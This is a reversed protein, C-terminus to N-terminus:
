KGNSKAVSKNPKIFQASELYKEKFETKSIEFLMDNFLKDKKFQNIFVANLKEKCKQFFADFSLPRCFISSDVPQM